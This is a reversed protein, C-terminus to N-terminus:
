GPVPRWWLWRSPMGTWVMDDAMLGVFPELERDNLAVVAAELAEVDNRDM